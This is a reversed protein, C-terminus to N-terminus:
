REEISGSGFAYVHGGFGGNTVTADVNAASLTRGCHWIAPDGSPDLACSTHSTVNGFLWPPSATLLFASAAPADYQLVAPGAFTIRSTGAIYGAIYVQGDYVSMGNFIWVDRLTSGARPILNLGTSLFDGSISFNGQMNNTGRYQGAIITTPTVGGASVFLTTGPFDCNLYTTPGESTVLGSGVNLQSEFAGYLSVVSAGYNTSATFGISVFQVSADYNRGLRNVVLRVPQYVVFSDGNAWSNVESGGPSLPQSLTWTNGSTNSNTWAYSPHTTDDVLQGASLGASLTATLVQAASPNKAVVGALTGTAVQNVAGLPGLFTLLGSYPQVQVADATSDSWASLLHITVQYSTSSVTGGGLVPEYSQWRHAPIENFTLCPSSSSTCSNADSALTTFNAPDVYWDTVLLEARYTPSSATAGMKQPRSCALLSISLLLILRHV